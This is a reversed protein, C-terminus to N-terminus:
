RARSRGRGRGDVGEDLDEIRGGHGRADAERSLGVLGEDDNASWGDRSADAAPRWPATLRRGSPRGTMVDYGDIVGAGGVVVTKGGPSMAGVPRDEPIYLEQGMLEPKAGTLRYVSVASLRGNCPDMVMVFAGDPSPKVDCTSGAHAWSLGIALNWMRFRQANPWPETKSWLTRGRVRLDAGRVYSSGASIKKQAHQLRTQEKLVLTTKERDLDFHTAGAGVMSNVVAHHTDLEIFEIPSEIQVSDFVERPLPWVIRKTVTDHFVLEVSGTSRTRVLYAVAGSPSVVASAVGPHNHWRVPLLEEDARPPAEIVVSELPGLACVKGELRSAHGNPLSVTHISPFSAVCARSAHREPSVAQQWPSLKPDPYPVQRARQAEVDVIALKGPIGADLIWRGDFAVHSPQPHAGVPANM